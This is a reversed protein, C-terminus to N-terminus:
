ALMCAPQQQDLAAYCGPETSQQHHLYLQASRSHHVGAHQQWHSGKVKGTVPARPTKAEGLPGSEGGGGGGAAAVTGAVSSLM